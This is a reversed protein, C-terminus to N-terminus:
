HLMKFKSSKVQTSTCNLGTNRLRLRMMKTSGSVNRSAPGAVVIFTIYM